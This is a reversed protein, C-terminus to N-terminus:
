RLLHADPKVRGASASLTQVLSKMPAEDPGVRQHSGYSVIPGGVLARDTAAMV